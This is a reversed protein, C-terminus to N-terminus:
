LHFPILAQHIFFKDEIGLLTDVYISDINELQVEIRWRDDSALFVHAPNRRSLTFIVLPHRSVNLCRCLIVSGISHSILGGYLTRRLKLQIEGM